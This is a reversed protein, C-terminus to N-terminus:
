AQLPAYYEEFAVPERREMAFEFQGGFYTGVLDPYADWLAKGLLEHRSRRLLREAAANLYTIRWQRDLTYFADAMTELTALLKGSMAQLEESSQLIETIDHLTGALMLRGSKDRYPVGHVRVHRVTGDPRIVRHELQTCRPRRRNNRISVLVANRDDPHTLALFTEIRGDFATKDIGMVRCTEASWVLKQSLPDFEWTGVHGIGEVEALQWEILQQRTLAGTREGSVSGNQTM